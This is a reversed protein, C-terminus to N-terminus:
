KKKCTCKLQRYQRGFEKPKPWENTQEKRAMWKCPTESNWKDQPWFQDLAGCFVAPGKFSNNTTDDNQGSPSAIPGSLLFMTVGWTVALAVGWEQLTSLNIPQSGFVCFFDELADPLPTYCHESLYIRSPCGTGPALSQPAGQGQIAEVKADASDVLYM